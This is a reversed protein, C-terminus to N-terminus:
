RQDVFLSNLIRVGEIALMRAKITLGGAASFGGPKGGAALVRHCPIILPVPNKGLAQGVARAAGPKALAEAIEGYTTTQGPPITRAVAYVQRAFPAAGGLDVDIDRFDETNGELHKRIREILAAIAPPPASSPRGGSERAIKAETAETTAEPLQFSIVTPVGRETEDDRWAIGCPGIRTDFVCYAIPKMSVNKMPSIISPDDHNM